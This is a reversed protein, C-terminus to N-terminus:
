ECQGLVLVRTAERLVGIDSEAVDALVRGPAVAVGTVAFTHAGITLAGNGDQRHTLILRLTM